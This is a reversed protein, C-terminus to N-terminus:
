ADSKKKRCAAAAGGAMLAAGLLLGGAPLPVPAAPAFTEFSFTAAVNNTTNGTAFQFTFSDGTTFSGGFGSFGGGFSNTGFTGAVAVAQPTGGNVSYTLKPLDNGSNTGTASISIGNFVLDEIVSITWTATSNKPLTYATSYSNDAEINFSSTYTLASAPLAMFALVATAAAFTKM